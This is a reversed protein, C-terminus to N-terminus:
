DSLKKLRNVSKPIKYTALKNITHAKSQNPKTPKKVDQDVFLSDRPRTGLSVGPM